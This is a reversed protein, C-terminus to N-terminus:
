INYIRGGIGVEGDWRDLEKGRGQEKGEWRDLEKGRKEERRRWVGGILNRVEGEEGRRRGM